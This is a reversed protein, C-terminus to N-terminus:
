KKGYINNVVKSLEKNAQDKNEIILNLNENTKKLEENEKKLNEYEKKIIDYDLELYKYKINLNNLKENEKRRFDNENNLLCINLYKNEDKLQRNENQIFSIKKELNNLMNRSLNLEEQLYEIHQEKKILEKTYEKKKNEYFINYSNIENAMQERFMKDQKKLSDKLNLSNSYIDESNLTNIINNRGNYINPLRFNENYNNYRYRNNM